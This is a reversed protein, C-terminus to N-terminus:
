SQWNSNIHTVRQSKIAARIEKRDKFTFFHTQDAKSLTKVAEFVANSSPHATPIESFQELICRMASMARTNDFTPPVFGGTSINTTGLVLSQRGYQIGEAATCIVAAMSVSDALALVLRCGIRIPKRMYAAYDVSHLRIGGNTSYASLLALCLEDQAGM